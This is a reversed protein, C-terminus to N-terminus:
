IAIHLIGIIRHSDKAGIEEIHYSMTLRPQVRRIHIAPLCTTESPKHAWPFCTLLYTFYTHYYHGDVANM